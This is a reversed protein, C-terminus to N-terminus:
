VALIDIFFSLRNIIVFVWSRFLREKERGRAKESPIELFAFEFGGIRKGQCHNSVQGIKM